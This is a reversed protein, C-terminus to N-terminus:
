SSKTKLHVRLLSLLTVLNDLNMYSTRLIWSTQIQIMKTHVLVPLNWSTNMWSRGHSKVLIMPMCIDVAKRDLESFAASPCSETEPWCAGPGFRQWLLGWFLSDRSIPANVTYSQPIRPIHELQFRYWPKLHLMTHRWKNTPTTGRSESGSETTSKSKNQNDSREGKM